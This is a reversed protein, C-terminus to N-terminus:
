VAQLLQVLARVEGLDFGRAVELQLGRSLNLRYVASGSPVALLNPVEVLAAPEPDPDPAGRQRVWRQVNSPALGHRRSFDRQSLGSRHYAAVLEAKEAATWRQRFCSKTQMAGM